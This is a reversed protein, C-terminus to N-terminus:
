SVDKTTVTVTRTPLEPKSTEAEFHTQLYPRFVHIADPSVQWNQTMFLFAKKKEGPLM